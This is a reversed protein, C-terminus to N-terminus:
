WKENRRTRIITKNKSSARTANTKARSNAITKLQQRVQRMQGEQNQIMQQQEDTFSERLRLRIQEKTQTKDQLIALQEDTLSAKLQERNKLMLQRQTQLMEQQQVSLQKMIPGYDVNQAFLNASTSLFLALSFLTILTKVQLTKM